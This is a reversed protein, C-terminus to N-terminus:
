CWSQPSAISFLTRYDRFSDAPDPGTPPGAGTEEIIRLRSSSPASSYRTCTKPIGPTCTCLPRECHQLTVASPWYCDIQRIYICYIHQNDELLSPTPLALIARCGNAGVLLLFARVSTVTTVSYNQNARSLVPMLRNILPQFDETAGHEGHSGKERRGRSADNCTSLASTDQGRFLLYELGYRLPPFM